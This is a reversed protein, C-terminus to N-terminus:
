GKRSASKRVSLKRQNCPRCCLQLNERINRGGRSLALDHDVETTEAKCFVCRGRDRQRIARLDEATIRDGAGREAAHANIKRARRADPDRVNSLM